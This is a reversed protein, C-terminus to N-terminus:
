LEDKKQSGGEEEKKAEVAAAPSKASAFALLDKVEREKKEYMEGPWEGKMNAQTYKIISPFGDVGQKDCAEKQVSCDVMAFVTSKASTKASEAAKEWKPALEKCHVCSPTYFKVMVVQWAAATGEKIKADWNKETLTRVVANPDAAAKDQIAQAAAKEAAKKASEKALVAAVEAVKFNKTAFETLVQREGKKEKAGANLMHLEFPIRVVKDGDYAVMFISPYNDVKFEGAVNTNVVADIAAVTIKGAPTGKKFKHGIAAWHPAMRKCNSCWPAYFMVFWAGGDARLKDHFDANTLKVSGDYWNKPAKPEGPKGQEGAPPGGDPQEGAPASSSAVEAAAPQGGGGGGGDSAKDADDGKMKYSYGKKKKKKEEKKPKAASEMKAKTAKNPKIKGEISSGKAAWVAVANASHKAAQKNDNWLVEGPWEGKLNGQNYKIVTPIERASIGEKDCLEKELLCDTMAMVVDQSSTAEVAKKAGDWALQFDKSEQSMHSMFFVVLQGTKKATATKLKKAFNEKTLLGPDQKAAEAYEKKRGDLEKKETAKTTAIRKAAAAVDKHDRTWRLLIDAEKGEQLFGLSFEAVHLKGDTYGMLKITPYSDIKLEKALKTNKVADVNALKVKIKNYQKALNENLKQWHPHLKQCNGCWPAFFQVLMPGNAKLKEHFTKDTLMAGTNDLWDIKKANADPGGDGGQAPAAPAAGGSAGAGDDRTDTLGMDEDITARASTCALAVVFLTSFARVMKATSHQVHSSECM